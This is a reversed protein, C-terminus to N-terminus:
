EKTLRLTQRLASGDALTGTVLVHYTGTALEHLDLSQMVGGGLSASRVLRGTADLLQVQYTGTTPLQSLDLTTASQAPNPYLSLTLSAVKTFSVTRVPSYTAKGDLDVQRLRYYVAGTARAAVNADTFAYTSAATTTGRAALQGVKAFTSGDFSREVDFFASNEESATTWSLQADRNQVATATFATLVVPLPSGPIKFAVTNTTVGGNLDVTTIQVSYDGSRLNPSAVTGPNSVVIRGTADVSLGLDALTAVGARSSSVLPGATASAIGNSAGSQPTGNAQYVSLTTANYIAGNADTTYAIVDGTTYAGNSGGKAPTLLYSRAEVDSEVPITYSVTPSVNSAADTTSYTFSANGVFAPDAKFRLTQAQANTLTQGAMVASYTGNATGDNYYLTGQNNNGGTTNTPITVVTYKQTTFSNEPDSANLPSILLGNTLGGADNSQPNQLANVVAYALPPRNTVTTPLTASNDSPTADTEGTVQVTTTLNAGGTPQVITFSNAVAGNAGPAQGAPITWTITNGNSSYVGGNTINTPTQNAPVTVTQTTVNNTASPGNNTAIVTYTQSTGAVASTPGSITAVENFLPTIPLSVSNANNALANSPESTNSATVATAVLPGNNPVVIQATYTVNGTTGTAQSAITPFTVVGTQTNYTIAGNNFSILNSGATATGAFGSISPLTTTTLGPVLQLTPTVNAAADTGANSYVATYTLSSGPTVTTTGSPVTVTAVLDASTTTTPAISTAVSASNNAVVPDTGAFAASAVGSTQGTTVNPMVFSVYNSSTTGVPLYALTPFTVTGNTTSYTATGAAGLNYTITNNAAATGTVGNVTLTSPSFGNAIQLSTIVSTAVAAGNNTTNVTYTVANGVVATAPGAVTTALDTLAPVTTAVSATNNAGVADPSSSNVSSGPAFSQAPAAFTLKFVQSAGNAVTALTPFTVKGTTSNYAAGSVSNGAGDTITVGNTGLGTPLQASETVGTAAMPGNNLFSATYTVSQGPVASAPGAITTQLDASQVLTIAVSSVNDAAVPDTNTTRVAAMALLQGNSGTTAVSTATAASPTIVITNTVSTASTSGNTGDTLTPFTVLGTLTNYTPGNTGFTITNTSTNLTGTTNNVTLTGVTFGPVLQVTQTVSTAASPGRNGTTVTLTVPSGVTTSATSATITTYVNATGAQPNLVAIPTSNANANLYAKNNDPNTDGITSTTSATNPTVQALPSVTTSSNPQSYSISNAVTQGSPLSAITPFVVTGAPVSYSVGNVVLTQTSTSPNYVGGNSVYVNTLGSALQVTEVANTAASPGNNTTTVALTVLDGTVASVPGTITTTLDFAPTVNLTASSTNNATQGAENTTTSVASSAVVPGTAPVDFTITSNVTASANNLSAPVDPYTYVGTTPSYVGNPNNTASVNTLGIPLQVSAVVGAAPNPGSNSFTVTFRSSGSTALTGATLTAPSAMITTAVNAVPVVAATLTSVDPAAGKGQTTGDQSTTTSVNSIIAVSTTASTAPTFSFTFTTKDGSNLTAATGFDITNPAAATPTYAAGNVIINTAGTPLTVTRGVTSAQSPGENTFSATYTGTPQGPSVTQPGTLATTVDAVLGITTTISRTDNDTLGGQATTTAVTSTAMVSGSAPATYTITFPNKDGSALSITQTANPYTITYGTLANGSVTGGNAVVNLPGAPLTVKRTVGNATLAGINGFEVNLTVTSGANANSPGTITTYVDAICNAGATSNAISNSIAANGVGITGAEAGYGNGSPQTIGNAAGNVTTTAVVVSNTFIVGGGGGGGPGHNAAANNAGKGDNSGGIGGNATLTLTANQSNTVTVLISGGAGAGGSGDNGVVNSVSAGNALISGTGTLTGTRVLVIGGGSVGSSAFGGGPTGTGNNTSGSGGGGGLVLRSSSAAPFAAGPEGGVPQNSSWSNGGRGGRGGNAGGGGGSNQANDTPTYDTGGGGANGPAGRGNDGNPYGDNLDSPLIAPYNANADTTRTDLPGNPSYAPDSVYRPTGAIGEGKTGGTNISASSRYTNVAPATAGTNTTGGLQRGAGGRFGAGSADIKYGNLNLQGDIDLAVIGGTTGNWPTPVINAALTVNTYQPVRIVQFTRQGNTTTAVKNSYNNKLATALTISGGSGAAITASNSAVTVYEYTGATFNTGTAVSTGTASGGAVGDGYSDSDTTNFDAGQMQVVLLLDGPAINTSGGRAAGVKIITNSTGTLTQDSISPYYTNPNTALSAAEGDKGATACNAATGAAGTPSVTTTVTANAATGNNDAANSDYSTSSSSAAVGMTTATAVYRVINTATAGSALDVANFTVIGTSADYTGNTVTVASAAPKTSLTVTVVDGTATAPGSNTTTAYYYVTQGAAATTPGSITTAVNALCNAGATSNAISNSIATNIVGTFGPTAGYATGNYSDSSAITGAVGGAAASAANAAGNALIVGGGGGGGPGHAVDSTNNNRSGAGGNALLTLNALGATNSATILISGGAGGGGAGDNTGSAGNIVFGGSGSANATGTGSVAGTRVLIIGGGPAGSSYIGTKGTDDGNGDNTSGAGGGGGMVLRSSSIVPFAAGGAAQNNMDIVRSDDTQIRPWGGLGGAGGNAGGAGGSNIGNSIPTDDTGGGGANGPAGKGNDGNPYGDVVGSAFAAANTTNDTRGATLSLLTYRPTGATGEGKTDNTTFASSTRYDTNLLGAASSGTYKIGAGGRFGLGATNLTQGNLNLTGTVDMAVIGGFDGNWALANIQGGLTVSSYQPIRVVQFSRRAATATAASTTYSNALRSVTITGSAGAALSSGAVVYEYTGATFNADNLNGAGTGNNAGYNNDNTANISAGQMQIVLLLDGASIASSAGGPTGVQISTNGAAASATGAFYTNIIGSLSAPAGDKGATACPGAAGAAGTAAVTTTVTANTASGDNNAAFSDTSTSTSAATGSVSTPSAQAIFSVSNTVSAGAALDVAAFTVVGTTASYTASAPITITNAAPKNALTITAKNGTSTQVNNNNTTTAVYTVTQGAVTATPGSLTTSVDNLALISTGILWLDGPYDGNYWTNAGGDGRLYLRFKLSTIPSNSRALVSGSAAGSGTNGGLTTASNLIKTTTVNLETSGSLKSLTATPGAGNINGILELETAFGLFGETGGLGVIQLVPNVVPQSFTITLDAYQYRGSTSNGTNNAPNTLARTATFLSVAQNAGVEIGTGATNARSATYLSNVNTGNGNSIANMLPFLAFPADNTSNNSGVTGFSVGYGTTSGAVSNYQQNDLKFTATVTPSYTTFTSNTPNNANSQFTIVQNGM